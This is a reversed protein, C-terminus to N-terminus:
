DDDDEFTITVFFDPDVVVRDNDMIMPRERVDDLLRSADRLIAAAKSYGVGGLNIEPQGEDKPVIITIIDFAVDIDEDTFNDENM